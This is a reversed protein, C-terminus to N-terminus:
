KGAFLLINDFSIGKPWNMADCDDGSAEHQCCIGRYATHSTDAANIGCFDNNDVELVPGRREEFLVRQNMWACCTQNHATLFEGKRQHKNCRGVNRNEERMCDIHLQNYQYALCLDTSLMM